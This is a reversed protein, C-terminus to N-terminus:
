RRAQAEVVIPTHVPTFPLERLQEAVSAGLVLSTQSLQAELHSIRGELPLGQQAFHLGLHPWCPDWGTVVLSAPHPTNM